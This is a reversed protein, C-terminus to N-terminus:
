TLIRWTRGDILERVADAHGAHVATESIVHLLIERLNHLRWTGWRGEPWAAPAAEPPVARIIANAREIEDRYLDLVAKAPVDPSVRWASQGSGDAVVQEGAFVGRFWFREVDVALHHILGLCTWGTPLVPRRLDGEPLGELIGLVHERQANVSSLLVEGESGAASQRM